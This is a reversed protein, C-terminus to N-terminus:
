FGRWLSGEGRLLGDNVGMGGVGNGGEGRGGQWLGGFRMRAWWVGRADGTRCGRWRRRLFGECVGGGDRGEEAAPVAGVSPPIILTEIGRIIVQIVIGPAVPRLQIGSIQSGGRRWCGM